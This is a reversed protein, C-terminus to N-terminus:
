LMTPPRFPCGISVCWWSLSSCILCEAVCNAGVGFQRCLQKNQAHDHDSPAGSHVDSRPHTAASTERHGYVHLRTMDKISPCGSDRSRWFQLYEPGRRPRSIRDSCFMSRLVVGGVGDASAGSRRMPADGLRRDRVTEASRSRAPLSDVFGASVRGDEVAPSGWRCVAACM